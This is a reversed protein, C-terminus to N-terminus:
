PLSIGKARCTGGRSQPVRSRGSSHQQPPSPLSPGPSARRWGGCMWWHLRCGQPSTGVRGRAPRVTGGLGTLRHSPDHCSRRSLFPVPISCLCTGTVSGPTKRSVSHSLWAPWVRPPVPCRGPCEARVGPSLSCPRSFGRTQGLPSLPLPRNKFTRLPSRLHSFSGATQPQRVRGRLPRPGRRPGREAVGRVWSAPHAGGGRPSVSM